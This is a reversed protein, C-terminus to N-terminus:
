LERFFFSFKFIDKNAYPVRFQFQHSVRTRSESHQILYKRSGIDILGHTLKYMLTLRFQRRRMELTTWGLDKIMDTVHVSAYRNYNQSCFRAAKRQVRELASVDKKLFPDWAASAYELKPRVLSTYAIEKVNKPCKWLNRQMTGLSKNAKAATMSVYASWKLKNSITVGLYPFSDVQELEIMVM